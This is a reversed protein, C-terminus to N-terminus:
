TLFQVPGAASVSFAQTVLGIGKTQGERFLLRSGPHICEPHRLFRFMVSAKENTVLSHSGLIAVLVATQRVNGIHVTTQFGPCIATAVYLVHVQAQFFQVVPAQLESGVLVQGNRLHTGHPLVLGLTASECARVVRCPVKHRHLSTVQVPLYAGAESPGAWLQDGERIVGRVLLGGVVTGVDPIKFTEDVQFETLEQVLRDRNALNCPPLVHLFTYILDLNFGDVCSVCFIPVVSGSSLTSAATIADDQSQIRLPVKACGPGTLLNELQVLTRELVQTTALDVKNVVVAVPVELALALGLHERTTGVVGSVASVVLMAVHPCHGTLGFVTTKLYKHHGALDIFTILKTSLDCMEEPTRCHRFTVPRGRADFGLTERSISSTRGSQIEHLHRFLNLRASGHGSDKCGQTLVGLLTSKGVDMNGLVAMRVEVTQQDDPVKRVLVQVCPRPPFSWRDSGDLTMVEAAKRNNGDVARERLITTTAGLKEAMLFLTDLSAKMEDPGLGVLLGGDEVGIKYIAEGHGERLRWKMQTVLHEFRSKSPNVLKLKYEVNGEPAEPPLCELLEGTGTPDFLSIFSSSEM